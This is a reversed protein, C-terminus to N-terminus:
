PQMRKRAKIFFNRNHEDTHHYNIGALTSIFPMLFFKRLIRIRNQIFTFPLFFEFLFFAKPSIITQSEEITLGILSLQKKWKALNWLTRLQLMDSFINNYKKAATKMGIKKLMKTGYFSKSEPTHTTFILQGGPKLIRNIEFLVKKLEPIHEFVSNSFITQISHDPLPIHHADSVIYKKYTKNKKAQNIENPSIDLGFDPKDNTLIRLFTGNGCGLDLVPRHMTLNALVTIEHLRWIGGSISVDSILKKYIQQKSLFQVTNNKKM